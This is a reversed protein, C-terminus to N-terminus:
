RGCIRIAFTCVYQGASCQEIYAALVANGLLEQHNFLAGAFYVTLPTTM